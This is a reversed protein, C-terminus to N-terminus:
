LAGTYHTRGLVIGLYKFKKERDITEGGINLAIDSYRKDLSNTSYVM